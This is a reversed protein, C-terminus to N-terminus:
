VRNLLIRVGVITGDVGDGITGLVFIGQMQDWVRQTLVEQIIVAEV